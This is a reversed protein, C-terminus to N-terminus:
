ERLGRWKGIIRRVFGRAQWLAILSTSVLGALAAGGHGTRALLWAAAALPIAALAFVFVDAFRLLRGRTQWVIAALYIVFGLVASVTAFLEATDHRKENVLALALALLLAQNFVGFVVCLLYVLQPTVPFKGAGVDLRAAMACGSCCYAPGEPIERFTRFPLGCYSCAIRNM